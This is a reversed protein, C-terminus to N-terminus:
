EMETDVLSSHPRTKPWRRRHDGGALNCGRTAERDRRGITGITSWGVEVPLELDLSACSM